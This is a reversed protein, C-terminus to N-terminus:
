KLLMVIQLLNGFSYMVFLRLFHKVANEVALTELESSSYKSERSLTKKSFYADCKSLKGHKQIIMSAHRNAIADTDTHLKTPLPPDFFKLLLQSIFTDIVYKRAEEQAIGM